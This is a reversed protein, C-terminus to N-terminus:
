RGNTTDKRIQDARNTLRRVVHGVGHWKGTNYRFNIQEAEFELLAAEREQMHKDLVEALHSRYEANPRWTSDCSCVTDDPANALARHAVLIEQITM